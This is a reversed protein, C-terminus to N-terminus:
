SGIDKKSLLWVLFFIFLIVFAVAFVIIIVFSIIAVRLSRPYDLLREIRESSNRVRM